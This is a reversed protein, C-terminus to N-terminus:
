QDATETCFYANQDWDYAPAASIGSTDLPSLLMRAGIITNGRFALTQWRIVKASGVVYNNRVDANVNTGIVGPYGVDLGSGGRRHYTRNNAAAINQSPRGGGILLEAGDGKTAIIGNDFYVNHEFMFNNVYAEDSGYAQTGNSFNAFFINDRFLKTGTNNQAYCGHGHGRDALGDWGNFFVLCGSVELDESTMGAGIGGACDHIILNIMKCGSGGNTNPPGTSTGGAFDIDTPFPGVQSSVRDTGGATVEFGWFWTYTGWMRLTETQNTIPSGRLIAREGPYQRVIIPSQASGDLYSIFLGNYTGGRLWITDGPKVTSPHNLATQLDWPSAQGGNGGATGNPAVYWEAGQAQTVWAAVCALMLSFVVPGRRAPTRGIAL